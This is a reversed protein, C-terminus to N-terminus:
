KDRFTAMELGSLLFSERELPSSTTAFSFPNSLFSFTNKKLCAALKIYKSLFFLGYAVSIKKTKYVNKYHDLGSDNICKIYYSPKIEIFTLYYFTHLLKFAQLIINALNIKLFEFSYWESVEINYFIRQHFYKIPLKQM